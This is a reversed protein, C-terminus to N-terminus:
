WKIGSILDILRERHDMRMPWGAIEQKIQALNTYGKALGNLRAALTSSLLEQHSPYISSLKEVANPYRHLYYKQHREEAPYFSIYPSIETEPKARGERERERIVQEAKAKQQENHYLVLSRYQRGKYDNINVPNHSNWFIRLIDEYSLIERDFDLQVMESHDGMERYSPQDTTGGAYGVKTRIVGPFHGFLAEPSWFCGMGLTATQLPNTLYSSVTVGGQNNFNNM